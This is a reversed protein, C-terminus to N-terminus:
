RRRCIPFFAFFADRGSKKKQHTKISAAYRTTRTAEDIYYYVKSSDEKFHSHTHSSRVIFEKEVFGHEEYYPKGIMTPQAAGPMIDSERIVYFLPINIEGVTRHIFNSFYEM